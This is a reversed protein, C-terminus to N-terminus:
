DEDVNNHAWPLVALRAYPIPEGTADSTGYTGADMKALARNVQDLLAREHDALDLLEDTAASRTAQDVDEILDEDSHTASNVHARSKRTLEDRKQELAHRLKALQADSLRHHAPSMAENYWPGLRSV